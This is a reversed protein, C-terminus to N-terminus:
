IETITEFLVKLGFILSDVSICEDIGHVKKLVESFPLDALVPSFGYIDGQMFRGDTRGLALIPLLPADEGWKIASEEMCNMEGTDVHSIFGSEYSVTELTVSIGLLIKDMVAEIEDQTAGPIFRLEGEMKAEAPVVNIADGISFEPFIFGSKTMYEWLNQLTKDEIPDKLVEEFRNSVQCRTEQFPYECLREVAENLQLIAQNDPPCSAHGSSGTARLRFRYCGKEGATILRYLRNWNEVIFGGGESIVFAPKTLEPYHKKIHQMGWRSGQEEDASAICVLDRELQIGRRKLLIMDMVQMATLQKTDLTGRGYIIGDVLEANFPPYQWAGKAEVVDLHSLFVIPTSEENTGKITAVLNWRDKKSEIVRTEIGEANLKTKLYAVAERESGPPNTTNIRILDRFLKIYEDKEPESWQFDM